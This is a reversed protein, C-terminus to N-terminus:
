VPKRLTRRPLPLGTESWFTLTHYPPCSRPEPESTSFRIPAANSTVCSQTTICFVKPLAKPRTLELDLATVWSEPYRGTGLERQEDAPTSVIKIDFLHEVGQCFCISASIEM